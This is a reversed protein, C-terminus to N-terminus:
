ITFLVYWKVQYYGHTIIINVCLINNSLTNNEFIGNKYTLTRQYCTQYHCTTTTQLAIQQSPCAVQDVNNIFYLLPENLFFVLLSM